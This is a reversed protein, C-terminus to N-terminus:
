AAAGRFVWLKNLVFSLAPVVVCAILFGTRYGLGLAETALAMVAVNAILGVSLSVGFRLLKAPTVPGHGAFVWRSQGLWTVCVACAFAAGNALPPAIGGREVLAWLIAFHTLTALVGVVGFRAIQRLRARM